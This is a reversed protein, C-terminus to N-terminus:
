RGHLGEVQDPTNHHGIIFLCTNVKGANDLRVLEIGRALDTMRAKKAHENV